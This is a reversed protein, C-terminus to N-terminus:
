TTSMILVNFLCRATSLINLKQIKSARANPAYIRCSSGKRSSIGLSLLHCGQLSMNSINVLLNLAWM